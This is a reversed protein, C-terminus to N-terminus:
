RGGARRRKPPLPEGSAAARVAAEVRAAVDPRDRYEDWIKERLSDSILDDEEPEGDSEAIRRFEGPEWGLAREIKSRIVSRPQKGAELNQITREGVGAKLALGKQTLGLEGRRDVVAAVVRGWGNVREDQVCIHANVLM